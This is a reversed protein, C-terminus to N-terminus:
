RVSTLSRRTEDAFRGHPFRSPYRELDARARDPDGLRAACRAHGVLAREAVGDGDAGLARAFDDVADLCRGAQSRLEGRVVLLERQSSADALTLRDLRGLADGRRGTRLLAHVLLRDAEPRLVGAPFRDRYVDLSALAATPDDERLQRMATAILASEVRIAAETPPPAARPLSPPPAARPLSPPPEVKPPEPATAPEQVVPQEVLPLPEAIPQEVLPPPTVVLRPAVTALKPATTRPAREQPATPPPPPTPEGVWREVETRRAGDIAEVGQPGLASGAGIQLRRGVERWEVSAEGVYAAVQWGSSRYTIEVLSRAAVTVRGVPSEVVMPREAARVALRGSRLTVAGTASLAAAAPGALVLRAAGDGDLTVREGTAAMLERLPATAATQTATAAAMATATAPATAAPATATAPVVTRRWATVAALACGGVAVAALAPALWPRRGRLERERLREAVRAVQTASLAPPAAGALQRLREALREHRPDDGGDVLRRPNDSM